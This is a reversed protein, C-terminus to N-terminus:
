LPAFIATAPQSNNASREALHDIVMQFTAIAGAEVEDASVAPPLTALTHLFSRWRSATAQGDGALFRGGHRETVASLARARNFLVRGGLMSGELVYLGGLAAAPGDYAFAVPALRPGRGVLAQLDMALLPSRVRTGLDLEFLHPGYPAMARELGAHVSWLADLLGIYGELSSVRRDADFAREAADHLPGTASRLREHLSGREIM